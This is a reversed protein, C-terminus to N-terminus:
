SLMELFAQLRGTAQGESDTEDALVLDLGPLNTEQRIRYQEAHWIDCGISRRYIIGKITGGALHQALWDYLATNPRRFAHAIGGFYAEVLADLPDDQLGGPDFRAPLGRQGHDTADLVVRGGFQEISDFLWWAHRPIPGGVLAVPIGDPPAPRPDPATEYLGTIGFRAVAEVWARASLQERAALLQGREHEYARMVEALRGATPATGGHRELFRGLRQLEEIYLGRVGAGQWTTPLNFLFVSRRSAGGLLESARRMQDCLTTVVIGEVEPM